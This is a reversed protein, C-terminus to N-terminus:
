SKANRNGPTKLDYINNYFGDKIRYVMSRSVNLIQVIEAVSFNKDLFKLVELIEDKNKSLKRVYKKYPLNYMKNYFGNKVKVVTKVCVGIEKAVRSQSMGQSLLDSVGLVTEKKIYQVNKMKERTEKSIIKGKHILGIKKRTEKSILPRNKASESMKACAESSHKLGKNSDVCETRINYLLGLNKYKDVFFQEYRKLEFEECYLLIKFIFNDKGSLNYAKQLYGNYHENRKLMNFHGHKRMYLNISGGIYREGDSLNEVKYIGCNLRNM